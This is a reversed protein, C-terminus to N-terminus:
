PCFCRLDRMKLKDEMEEKRQMKAKNLELNLLIFDPSLCQFNVFQCEWIHLLVNSEGFFFHNQKKTILM